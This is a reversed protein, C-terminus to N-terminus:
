KAENEVTKRNNHNETDNESKKDPVILAAVFYFIVGPFLGTIFIFFLFLLRYVTPDVDFYEGLGGLIGFLIKNKNSKYLKKM